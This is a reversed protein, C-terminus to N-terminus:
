CNLNTQKKVSNLFSQFEEVEYDNKMYNISQCCLVTNDKTYGKKSDIRDISVQYPNKKLAVYKMDVGTYYCKGEQKDWLHLIFELDIEFSLKRRIASGRISGYLLNLPLEEKRREINVKGKELIKEKNKRYYEKQYEKGENSSNRDKQSQKKREWAEISYWQQKGNARTHSYYMQKKNCFYGRKM